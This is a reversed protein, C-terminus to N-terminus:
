FSDTPWIIHPVGSDASDDVTGVLDSMVLADPMISKYMWGNDNNEVISDMNFFASSPSSKRVQDLVFTPMSLKCGATEEERIQRIGHGALRALADSPPITKSEDLGFDRLQYQGPPGRQRVSAWAVVSSEDDAETLVFLSGDLEKSVYEIWYEKSRAICGALKSESYSIHIRHLEDADGPFSAPRISGSGENGVGLDVDVISWKSLVCHYGVSEYVPFFAPAAHLLSIPTKRSEMIELCDTLLAKSLGRRRHDHHTCVEGIGGASVPSADNKGVRVSRVFVRCSAVISGDTEDVAVRILSADRHPDNRFHREFYAPPPPNPKYSFIGACFEAWSAIEDESLGRIAYAVQVENGDADRATIEHKKTSM